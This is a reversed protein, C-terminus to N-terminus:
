CGRRRQKPSRVLPTAFINSLSMLSEALGAATGVDHEEVGLSLLVRV